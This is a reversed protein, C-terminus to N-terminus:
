DRLGNCQTENGLTNIDKLSSGLHRFATSGTYITKLINPCLRSTYSLLLGM